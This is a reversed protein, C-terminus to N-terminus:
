ECPRIPGSQVSDVTSGQADPWIYYVGNALETLYPGSGTGFMDVITIGPNSRRLQKFTTELPISDVTRVGDPVGGEGDIGWQSLYMKDTKTPQQAEFNVWLGGWRLNRSWIPNMPCGDGEYINDPNGLLRRLKDEVSQYSTGFGFNSVKNPALWVKIPTPFVRVTRAAEDLGSEVWYNLANIVPGVCALYLSAKGIIKGALKGPNKVGRKLLYLGLQKAVTVDIGGVCATAARAFTAGDSVDALEKSCKATALLAAAYGDAKRIMDVGVAEAITTLIFQWGSQRTLKVATAGSNKRAENESLGISFEEGPSIMNGHATLNRMSKAFTKDMDALSSWADKLDGGEFSSNYTWAPKVGTEVNFGYGRNVRAKVVLMKPNSKDAGACFLIPNNRETVIFQTSDVWDPKEANCRPPDVRTDFVKGLNYHAWEAASAVANEISRMADETGSVFDTWWSLHHVVASVSRRDASVESPVAVWSGMETNFYALTATSDQPLPREYRRTIRLGEAPIAGDIRIETPRGVAMPFTGWDSLDKLEKRGLQVESVSIGSVQAAAGGVETRGAVVPTAASPSTSPQPWLSCGSVLVLVAVVWVSVRRFSGGMASMM